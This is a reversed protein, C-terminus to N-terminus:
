YALGQQYLGAAVSVDDHKQTPVYPKAEGEYTVRAMFGMKPDASYTVVQTRGDPLLVRYEGKTTEGDSYGNHAHQNGLQSDEVAYGFNHANPTGHFTPDASSHQFQGPNPLGSYIIGGGFNNGPDAFQPTHPQYNNNGVYGGQSPTEFGTLSSPSKGGGGSPKHAAAIVAGSTKASRYLPAMPESQSQTPYCYATAWVCCIITAKEWSLSVAGLM